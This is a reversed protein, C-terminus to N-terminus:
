RCSPLPGPHRAVTGWRRCSRCCSKPPTRQRWRSRTWRKWGPLTLPAQSSHATVPSQTHHTVSAPQPHEGVLRRSSLPPSPTSAPGGGALTTAAGRRGLPARTGGIWREGGGRGARGRLLVTCMSAGPSPMKEVKMSPPYLCIHPVEMAHGMTAPVAARSCACAMLHATAVAPTAPITPPPVVAHRQLHGACM